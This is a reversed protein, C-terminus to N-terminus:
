IRHSTIIHCIQLVPKYIYRNHQKQWYHQEDVVLNEACLWHSKHHHVLPWRPMPISPRCYAKGDRSSAPRLWLVIVSVLFRLWWKRWYTLLSVELRQFSGLASTMTSWDSWLQNLRTGLKKWITKTFTQMSAKRTAGHFVSDSLYLACNKGTHLKVNVKPRYAVKHAWSNQVFM